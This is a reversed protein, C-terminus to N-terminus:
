IIEEPIVAPADREGALNRAFLVTHVYASNVKTQRMNRLQVGSNFMANEYCSLLGCKVFCGVALKKNEKLAHVTRAVCGIREVDDFQSGSVSKTCM